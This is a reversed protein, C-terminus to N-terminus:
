IRYELKLGYYWIGKIYRKSLIKKMDKRMLQQQIRSESADIKEFLEKKSCPRLKLLNKISDRIKECEMESDYM